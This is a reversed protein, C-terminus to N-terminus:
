DSESLAREIAEKWEAPGPSGESQLNYDRGPVRVCWKNGELVVVRTNAQLPIEGKQQVEKEDIYILRRKSTLILWRTM